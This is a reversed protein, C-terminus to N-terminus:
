YRKVESKFSDEKCCWARLYLCLQWLRHSSMVLVLLGALLLVSGVMVPTLSVTIFVSPVPQGSNFRRAVVLKSREGVPIHSNTPPIHSNTPPAQVIPPALHAIPPSAEKARMNGVGRM